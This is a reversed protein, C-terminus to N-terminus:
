DTHTIVVRDLAGKFPFPDTYLKSVQTGTDRGIDFTEALSYTSIHMRPMDKEDVKKGNVYLEGTGAFPGTRTFNFKLEKKGKPFLVPM